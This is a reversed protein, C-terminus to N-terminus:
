KAESNFKVERELARSSTVRRLYGYIYLKLLDKPNYPCCGMRKPQANAFGLDKIFNRL